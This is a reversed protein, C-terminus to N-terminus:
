FYLHFGPPILFLKEKVIKMHLDLTHMFSTPVNVSYSM